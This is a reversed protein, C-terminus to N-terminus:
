LKPPDRTQVIQRPAQRPQVTNPTQPPTKPKHGAPPPPPPPPPPAARFQVTVPEESAPMHARVYTAVAAIGILAGHLFISVMMSSGRRRVNSERVSTINDFM